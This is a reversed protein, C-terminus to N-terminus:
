SGACAAPGAECPRIATVEIHTEGDPAPYIKFLYSERSQGRVISAAAVGIANEQFTGVGYVQDYFKVVEGHSDTTAFFARQQYYNGRQVGYPKSLIRSGPYLKIGIKEAEKEPDYLSTDEAPQPIQSEDCPAPYMECTRIATVEIHTEGDPATHINFLYSERSGVQMISAGAVGAANEQFTGVGYVQGYFKEVDERTDTTTFFARQQYYNGRRIAYPMSLIRASPYLKIGIKEAEKEPDYRSTYEAPRPYGANLTNQPAVPQPASAAQTAASAATRAAQPQKSCGASLILPVLSITAAFANAM